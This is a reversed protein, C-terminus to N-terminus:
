HRNSSTLSETVLPSHKKIQKKANNRKKVKAQQQDKNQTNSYNRQKLVITEKGANNTISYKIKHKKKHPGNQQTKIRRVIEANVSYNLNICTNFKLRFQMQKIDINTELKKQIVFEPHTMLAPQKIKLGLQNAIEIVKDIIFTM